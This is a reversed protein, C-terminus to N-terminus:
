PALYRANSERQIMAEAMMIQESLESRLALARAEPQGKLEDIRHCCASLKQLGLMTATPKLAHAVDILDQGSINEEACREVSKRLSSSFAEVLERLLELGMEDEIQSWVLQLYESDGSQDHESSEFGEEQTLRKERQRSDASGGAALAAGQLNTEEPTFQRALNLLQGVSFPKSFLGTFLEVIKESGEYNLSGSMAFAPVAALAQNSARIKVLVEDGQLGPMNIDLLFLHPIKGSENLFDLLAEGNDFAYVEAGYRPLLNEVIILNAPMDDVVAVQLGSLFQGLERPHDSKPEPASAEELPLNVTFVSGGEDNSRVSITGQMLDTLNKAITLGLGTGGFERDHMESSMVFADFLSGMKEAPIGIGTDTVSFQLGEVETIEVVVGGRETYKIANSMLNNLIQRIRFDDGKFYRQKLAESSVVKLSLQKGLALPRMLNALENALGFPHFTVEQLVLMGAEAKSYDLVDDLITRMFSASSIASSLLKKEEGLSDQSLIELIGQIGHLPNRIEHSITAFLREKQRIERQVKESEQTLLANQAQVMELLERNKIQLQHADILKAITIKLADDVWPKEVFQEILGENIGHIVLQFDANGSMLVRSTESHRAQIKAMLELGDCVPMRYDSLVLDVKQQDLVELAEEASSATAVQYAEGRLLRKLANLIRVEDDVILISPQLSEISSAMSEGLPLQPM